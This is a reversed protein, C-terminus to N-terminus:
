KDALEAEFCLAGQEVPAGCREAAGRELRGEDTRLNVVGLPLARGPLGAHVLVGRPGAAPLAHVWRLRLAALGSPALAEDLAEGPVRLHQGAAGRAGLVLSAAAPAQLAHSTTLPRGRATAAPGPAGATVPLLEAEFARPLGPHGYSFFAELPGQHAGRGFTLEVTVLAADRRLVVDIRSLTPQALRLPALPAPPDKKKRPAPAAPGAALLAALALPWRAGKL